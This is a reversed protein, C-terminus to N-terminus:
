RPDAEAPVSDDPVLGGDDDREEDPITTQPGAPVGQDPLDPADVPEQPTAAPDPTTTM